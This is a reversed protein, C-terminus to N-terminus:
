SNGKDESYLTQAIYKYKSQTTIGERTLEKQGKNEATRAPM